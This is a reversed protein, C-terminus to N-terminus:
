FYNFCYCCYYRYSYYCCYYLCSYYCCYYLYSYYCCYCSWCIYCGFYSWCFYFYSDLWICCDSFCFGQFALWTAKSRGWCVCEPTRRWRFWLPSPAPVSFRRWLCVSRKVSTWSRLSCLCCWLSSSFESGSLITIFSRMSACIPTSMIVWFCVQVAPTSMVNLAVFNSSTSTLAAWSTLRHSSGTYLYNLKILNWLFHGRRFTYRSFWKSGNASYFLYFYRFTCSSCSFTRCSASSTSVNKFFSLPPKTVVNM